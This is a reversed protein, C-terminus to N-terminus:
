LTNFCGYITFLPNVIQHGHPGKMLQQGVFSPPADAKYCGNSKVSVDYTVSTPIFPQAGTAPTFVELTCLWDDGPGNKNGARRACNSLINLKAGAPVTRGLERQQLLALRNFAPTLTKQLRSPTDGVPGLSAAAALAAIVVVCVVATRIPVSWGPRRAAPAGAIDRHRLIAWAGWLCAIIWALSVLSGVVAPGYYPHATFLGHWADFASALLLLHVWVGAGVLALLQMALAVLATGIVGIIGNRSAVSFLVAISMFGLMPLINLLWSAFVLAVASGASLLGGGLDVLPQAGTFLLGAVFSSVMTLLLLAICFTAAAMVKGAFVEDRRCSRTLVTKWTGYRDESSFLDGALVGALIPFGWQGAFSLVVLTVAFGSTHVWVGFLTDAPTASQSGLLAAFALPGILCVLAVLKTATQAALKRRETRYASWLGSRGAADRSRPTAGGHAVASSASM